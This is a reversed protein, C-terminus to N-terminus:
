QCSMSPNESDRGAESAHLGAARRQKAYCWPPPLGKKAQSKSAHSTTLLARPLVTWATWEAARPLRLFRHVYLYYKNPTCCPEIHKSPYFGWYFSQPPQSVTSALVRIVTKSYKDATDLTQFALPLAM